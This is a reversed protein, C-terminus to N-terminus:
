EEQNQRIAFWLLQLVSRISGTLQSQINVLDISISLKLLGSLLYSVLSFTTYFKMPLENKEKFMVLFSKKCFVSLIRRLRRSHHLVNRGIKGSSTTVWCISFAGKYLIKDSTFTSWCPKATIFLTIAKGERNTKSHWMDKFGWGWSKKTYNCHLRWPFSTFWM